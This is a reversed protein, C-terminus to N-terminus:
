LNRLLGLLLGRFRQELNEFPLFNLISTGEMPSDLLEPTVCSASILRM